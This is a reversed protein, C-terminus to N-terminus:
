AEHSHSVHGLVDGDSALNVDTSLVHVEAQEAVARVPRLRDYLQQEGRRVLEADVVDCLLCEDRMHVDHVRVDRM